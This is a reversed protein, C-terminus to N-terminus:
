AQRGRKIDYYATYSGYKGIVYARARDIEFRQAIAKPGVGSRYLEQIAAVEDDSLNRRGPRRAERAIAKERMVKRMEATPQWGLSEEERCGRCLESTKHKVGGCRCADQWPYM